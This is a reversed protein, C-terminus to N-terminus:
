FISVPSGHSSTKRRKFALEFVFFHDFRKTKLSKANCIVHRTIECQRGESYDELVSNEFVDQSPARYIM